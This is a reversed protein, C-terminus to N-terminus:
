QTVKEPFLYTQIRLGSQLQRGRSGGRGSSGGRSSEGSSAGTTAITLQDFIVPFKEQELSDIFRVISEFNKGSLKLMLETRGQASTAGARARSKLEQINSIPAKAQAALTELKGIIDKMQDADSANSVEVNLEKTLSDLQRSASRYRLIRNRANRFEGQQSYSGRKSGGLKAAIPKIVWKIGVVALVIAIGIVVTRKERPALSM